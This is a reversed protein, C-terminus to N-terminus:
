NKCCALARGAEAVESEHDKPLFFFAFSSFCLATKWEEKEDELSPKFTEEPLGKLYGMWPLIAGGM